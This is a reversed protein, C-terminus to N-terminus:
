DVDIAQSDVEEPVEPEEELAVPEESAKPQESAEPQERVEPEEMAQSAMPVEMGEEMADMNAPLMDTRNASVVPKLVGALPSRRSKKNRPLEKKLGGGNITDNNISNGNDESMERYSTSGRKREANSLMEKLQAIEEEIQRESTITESVRKEKIVREKQKPSDNDRRAYKNKDSLKLRPLSVRVDSLIKPKINKAINEKDKATDSKRFKEIVKNLNEPIVEDSNDVFVINGNMTNNEITLDLKIPKVVNKIPRLHKVTVIVDVDCETKNDKDKIIVKKGFTGETNVAQLAVFVKRSVETARYNEKRSIEEIEMPTPSSKEEEEGALKRLMNIRAQQKKIIGQMRIKKDIRRLLINEEERLKQIQSRYDMKCRVKSKNASIVQDSTEGTVPLGGYQIQDKSGSEM